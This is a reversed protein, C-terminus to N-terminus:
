AQPQPQNPRPPRPYLGALRAILIAVYFTGTLPDIAMGGVSGLSRSLSLSTLTAGTAKNVTLLKALAADLVYLTGTANFAMASPDGSLSTPLPTAAGTSPNLTFLQRASGNLQYMGYLTGTTRDCALDGETVNNLGTSGVFQFAGTSPNIRVLSNPQAPASGSTLGYLVNSNSVTIGVLHDLGTAKPDSALGTQQSIRYLVSGQPPATFSVGCLPAAWASGAGTLVIATVLVILRSNFCTRM